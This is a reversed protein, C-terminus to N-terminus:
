KSKENAKGRKRNYIYVVYTHPEYTSKDSLEM